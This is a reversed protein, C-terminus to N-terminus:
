PACEIPTVVVQFGNARAELFAVVGRGGAVVAAQGQGANVGENSINLPEGVPAADASLTMVRVDHASTPGETWVLL